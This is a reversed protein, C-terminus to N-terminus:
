SVVLGVALTAAAIVGAVTAALMWARPMRAATDQVPLPATVTAISEVLKPASM